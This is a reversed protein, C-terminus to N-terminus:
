DNEEVQEFRSEQSVNQQDSAGQDAITMDTDEYGLNVNVDDYLENTLNPDPIEDSDSEIRGDNSDDDHDDSEGDNDNDGDDDESDGWSEKKSESEYPPVDPVGLKTGTGEDTGFTNQQQEDQVKSNTDFGDSSGSAHSVHFHKKSRKSALKSKSKIKTSKNAQVPKQKPSTDLDAKKRIYKPKPAKEGSAFAYYTQYAKSELMAHNTLKTPLITGYVQTDEHRSICRMSSFQTDDQATHWFMKNRSLISLDKSMFYDIIINTLKPYSMKNTKKADKYEIQFLLDSLCKNIVTAFARWTQHLYDVNVDTLYTIDETHRHVSVIAWFEQLCIAPVDLKEILFNFGERPLPKTFIAALQYETQVFYLEVIINEVQEEIFHYRVDIHKAQSHQFNNCCLAIASKNNCYVLIKNFQFDYDPLLLLDYGAKGTFLTPDVAGKSFHQPILFRSSPVDQDISTLMPSDVLIVARLTAAEVLTRNQREVVSNRKKGKISAVRMPGYFDMPLLYLKEQNTEEAKSQYSSKESKGFNLHSLRHHWLWSKTKSEKSLLRILSTKLMDDLSIIYLNTDHSGFLLDVGELNCIFCIKKRFHSKLIRTMSNVLLFCTIVLGRSMTYEQFLLMGLQYDGYGMIRATHNNGFRVIGLIKSVFNMLQSHNGTMHISCGFDLYWLVIQVVKGDQITAQNILNSSNRLQNNTLPFRSSTVSTLFAMAKNLCAIPNDGPSFVPVVFGSDMLPLKTMPQTTLQPSQYAILPVYTTQHNMQSQYPYSSLVSSHNFQSKLPYTSSYHQNPHILGFQSTSFQQQLQPNNYSSQYTNLYFPTMQQNAIFALPDQNHKHLLCVENAHLEHQELYAHLRHHNLLSYINAPLGQLIINTAKMDCDAQIKKAASLEAYKKTRTVGNEEITPWILPSNEVAELITRGHERNQMYLEMQIKWSDYLDKDLMPPRNDAGSLISI